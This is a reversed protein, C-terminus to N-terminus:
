NLVGELTSFVVRLVPWPKGEPVGPFSEHEYLLVFLKERADYWGQVFAAGEPLGALCTTRRIDGGTFWQTLIEPQVVVVKCRRMM